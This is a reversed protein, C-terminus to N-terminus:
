PGSKTPSLLDYPTAPISGLVKGAIWIESKGDLSWFFLMVTARTQEGPGCMRVPNQSFMQGGLNERIRSKSNSAIIVSKGMRRTYLTM